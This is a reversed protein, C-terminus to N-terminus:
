LGHMSSDSLHPDAEVAVQVVSVAPQWRRGARRGLCSVVAVLYDPLCRVKRVGPGCVQVPERQRGVAGHYTRSGDRIRGLVEFEDWDAALAMSFSPLLAEEAARRGRLHYGRSKAGTRQWTWAACAGQCRFCAPGVRTTGPPYVGNIKRMEATTRNRNDTKGSVANRKRVAEGTVVPRLPVGGVAMDCKSPRLLMWKGRGASLSLM